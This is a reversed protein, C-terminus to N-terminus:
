EPKPGAVDLGELGQMPDAATMAGAKAQEAALRDEDSVAHKALYGEQEWIATKSGLGENQDKQPKATAVKIVRGFLESQDMNDIAERADAAHEFEVYGFGRHPDTSSPLDPKPLSIDVIEGFPVFADHLTRSTVQNDLGGVYVTAKLRATESM